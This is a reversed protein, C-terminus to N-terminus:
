KEKQQYMLGVFNFKLCRDSALNLNNQPIYLFYILLFPMFKLIEHGKM